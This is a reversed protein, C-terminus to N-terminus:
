IRRGAPRACRRSKTTSRRGTAASCMPAPSSSTSRARARASRTASRTSGSSRAAHPRRSLRDRGLRGSHGLRRAGQRRARGHDSLRLGRRGDAARRCPRAGRAPRREAPPAGQRLAPARARPTDDGALTTLDICTLAKVLWAAQYEKKVSRRTTLTAARREVASANVGVSEFWDPELPAGPNRPRNHGPLANERMQDM